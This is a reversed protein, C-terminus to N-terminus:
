LSFIYNKGENSDWGEKGTEDIGVIAMQVTLPGKVQSEQLTFSWVSLEQGGRRTKMREALAPTDTFTAWNDITTRVRVATSSISAIIAGHLHGEQRYVADLYLSKAQMNEPATYMVRSNDSVGKEEQAELAVLSTVSTGATSPINDDDLADSSSSSSKTERMPVSLAQTESPLAEANTYDQEEYSSLSSAATVMEPSARGQENATYTSDPTSSTPSILTTSRIHTGDADESEAEDIHAGERAAQPLISSAGGAKGAETSDRRQSDHDGRELQDLSIRGDDEQHANLTSSPTSYPIWSKRRSNHRSNPPPPGLQMNDNANGNATNSYPHM